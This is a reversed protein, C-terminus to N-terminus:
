AFRRANAKRRAFVDAFLLCHIQRNLLKTHRKLIGKAVWLDPIQVQVPCGGLCPRHKCQLCRQAEEMAMEKTYGLAVEGFNKNRENPTQEPMQVKKPSMNAM